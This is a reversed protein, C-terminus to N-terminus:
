RCLSAMSSDKGDVAVSFLFTLMVGRVLTLASHSFLHVYSSGVTAASFFCVVLVDCAASAVGSPPLLAVYTYSGAHQNWALYRDLIEALTEEACVELLKEQKTLVNVIRVLRTSKSLRGIFFKEDRWWPTGFDNKWDSTPDKPPVHMFRGMPTYPVSLNTEPDVHYKVDGTLHDFWETVDKGAMEVM